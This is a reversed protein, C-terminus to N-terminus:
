AGRAHRARAPEFVAEGARWREIVDPEELAIALAPALDLADGDLGRDACGRQVGRLTAQAVTDQHIYGLIETDGDGAKRRECATADYSNFGRCVFPRVPYIRCGNDKLLPCPFSSPKEQGYQAKKAEAAQRINRALARLDPQSFHDALHVTIGIVELASAHVETGTCCFACGEACAIAKRPPLTGAIDRTLRELFQVIAGLLLPLEEVAESTALTEGVIERVQRELTVSYDESQAQSNKKAEM